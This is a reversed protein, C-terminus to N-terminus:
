STTHANELIISADVAWLESGTSVMPNVDISEIDSEDAIVRTLITVQQHLRSLNVPGHGRWAHLYPWVESDRLAAAFQEKTLPPIMLAVRSAVETLVGGVGIVVVQGFTPDRRVGVLLERDATLQHSVTCSIHGEGLGVTEDMQRYAHELELQSQIGLRVGGVDTKHAVNELQAKLVLPYGVAEAAHTAESVSSVVEQAVVNMGADALRQLSAHETLSVSDPTQSPLDGTDTASANSLFKGRECLAALSAAAEALSGYCPVGNKRSATFAPENDKAYPTYFVIPKGTERQIEGLLPAATEWTLGRDDVLGEQFGEGYLGYSLGGDFNDTSLPYRMLTAFLRLDETFGGTMDVPNGVPAWPPLHQAFRSQLGEDFAPISLGSREVCDTGITSHGGGSGVIAVRTGSMPPCRLVGETVALLHDLNKVQIIGAQKFASDYIGESSSLRSTHSAAARRGANTAGGKIAVIPKKLAVKRAREIFDPGSMEQLSEIYVLITEITSDEGMYELYDIMPIDAQNGFSVFSHFGLDYREAHEFVTLAINGSQSILGVPGDAIDHVSTLHLGSGRDFVGMCNPGVIRMGLENCRQVMENQAAAGESDMEAFGATFVIGVKVGLEAAEIMAAPTAKLGVAGFVLDPVVPLESLSTYVRSGDIQGGSRGVPYVHGTYTGGACARYISNGGREVSNSVGVVAINEPKFLADLYHSM